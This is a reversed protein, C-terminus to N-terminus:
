VQIERLRDKEQDTLLGMRRLLDIDLKAWEITESKVWDRRAKTVLENKTEGLQIIDFRGDKMAKVVDKPNVGNAM